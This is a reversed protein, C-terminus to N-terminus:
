CKEEGPQKTRFKECWQDIPLPDPLQMVSRGDPRTRYPWGRRRPRHGRSFGFSNEFILPAM